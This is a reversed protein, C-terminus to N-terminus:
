GTRETRPDLTALRAAMIEARKALSAGITRTDPLASMIHAAFRVREIDDALADLTETDM